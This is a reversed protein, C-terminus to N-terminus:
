TRFPLKSSLCLFEQFNGMDPSPTRTLTSRRREQLIAESDEFVMIPARPSLDEPLAIEPHRPVEIADTRSLVLCNEFSLVPEEIFEDPVDM